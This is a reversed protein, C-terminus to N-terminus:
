PCPNDTTSWSGFDLWAYAILQDFLSSTSCDNGLNKDFFNVIIRYHADPWPGLYVPSPPDLCINVESSYECCNASLSTATCPLSTVGNTINCHDDYQDVRVNYYLANCVGDNAQCGCKAKVTLGFIHGACPGTSGPIFLVKEDMSSWNCSTSM